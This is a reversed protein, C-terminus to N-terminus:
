LTQLEYRYVLDFLYYEKEFKARFKKKFYAEDFNADTSSKNLNPYVYTSNFSFIKMLSPITLSLNDYTSLWFFKSEIEEKMTSKDISFPLGSYYYFANWNLVELLYEELSSTHEARDFQYKWASVTINLPDRLVTMYQGITPYYDLAGISLSHHWFHGHICIQKNLRARTPPENTSTPYHMHINDKFLDSLLKGMSTGASKPIHISIFPQEQNYTRLNLM